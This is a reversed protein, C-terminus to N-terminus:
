WKGMFYGTREWVVSYKAYGGSREDAGEAAEEVMRRLEAYAREVDAETRGDVQLALREEGAGPRRGPAFFSGRVTINVDALEKVSELAARSTVRFRAQQPYDNIELRRTHQRESLAEALAQPTASGGLAALKKSLAISRAVAELRSRRADTSSSSQAEAYVSRYAARTLAQAQEEPLTTSKTVNLTTRVATAGAKAAAM